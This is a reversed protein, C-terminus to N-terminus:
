YMDKIIKYSEIAYKGAKIEVAQGEHPAIELDNELLDTKHVADFQLFPSITIKGSYSKGDTEVLRLVTDDSDEAKKVVTLNMNDHEVSFFSHIRPLDGNHNTTEIAILPYNFEYGRRMTQAERCDGQHPYLAYKIHHIGQEDTAEVPHDPSRLVSLRITNKTIDHGYRSDNLLSVGYQEDSIDVWKQAVHEEGISNRTITGYPIEYTASDSQISLPFAVKVMKNRGNWDLVLEFDIRRIGPYLHVLQIFRALRFKKKIQLTARVPGSEVLQIDTVEDANWLRGSWLDYEGFGKPSLLFGESDGFDEIVQIRNGQETECLLQRDVRKDEVRSLCGTATDIQIRFFENEIENFRANLTTEVPKSDRSQVWYCRYGMSPVRALFLVKVLNRDDEKFREIIQVPILENENNRIQIAHVENEFPIDAEVLDIREWSLPNFVVVPLGEGSTNIQETISKLAEHLQVKGEDAIQRYRLLADDISPNIDTGSITDHFQNLMVKEWANYIWGQPYTYEGLADAIAAFKELTMLLNESYRNGKKIEGVTTYIGRITPILEDRIVPFHYPQDMLTSIFREPTSFVLGAKNKNEQRGKMVQQMREVEAKLAGGGHNGVGILTIGDNVGYRSNIESLYENITKEAPLSEGGIRLPKYAFVRSGDPAEWWFMRDDQVKSISALYDEKLSDPVLMFKEEPRPRSYMYSNIGSKKLIQPFTWPHTWADQFWATKVDIGFQHKFFRKGYLCQRVLSEGCPLSGDLECYLASGIAFRGESGSAGPNPIREGLPSKNHVYYRMKYFLDPYLNEFPAISPVQLFTFTYDPYKEMNEFATELTHKSIVQVTHPDYRWWWALDIHTQPIIHLTLNESIETSHATPQQGFAAISFFGAVCFILIFPIKIHNMFHNVENM